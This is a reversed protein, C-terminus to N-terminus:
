AKIMVAMHIRMAIHKSHTLQETTDWEKHSCPSYGALSRQGCFEGPLFEPSHTAMGKGLPDEKGLSWLWTEQVAPLNKATAILLRWAKEGITDILGSERTNAIEQHEGWFYGRGCTCGWVLRPCFIGEVVIKLAARCLDHNISWYKHDWHFIKQSCSLNDTITSVILLQKNKKEQKCIGKFISVIEQYVKCCSLYSLKM